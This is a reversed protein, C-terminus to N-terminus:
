RQESAWVVLNSALVESTEPGYGVIGWTNTGLLGSSYDWQSFLVRVKGDVAIEDVAAATVGKGLALTGFKRFKVEGLPKGDAFKGTFVAHDAPLAEPGSGPYIGKMARLFSETFEPNGGAAEALLIGGSDLFKKLAGMEEVSLTL